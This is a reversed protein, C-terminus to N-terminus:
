LGVATALAWLGVTVVLVPLSYIAITLKTTM